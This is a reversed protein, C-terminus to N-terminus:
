NNDGPELDLLVNGERITDPGGFETRLEGFEETVVTWIEGKHRFYASCSTTFGIQNKICAQGDDRTVWSYHFFRQGDWIFDLRGNEHFYAGGNSWVQTNGALYETVEAPGMRVAGDAVVKDELTMKGTACALLGFAVAVILVIKSIRQYMIDARNIRVLLAPSQEYHTIYFDLLLHERIIRDQVSAKNDADSHRKEKVAFVFEEISYLM